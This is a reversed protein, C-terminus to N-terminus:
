SSFSSSGVTSRAMRTRLVSGTGSPGGGGTSAATNAAPAASVRFVCRESRSLIVEIFRIALTAAADAAAATIIAALRTANRTHGPPFEPPRAMASMSFDMVALVAFNVMVM